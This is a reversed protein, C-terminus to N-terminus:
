WTTPSPRATWSSPPRSTCRRAGMLNSVYVVSWLRALGALTGQADLVPQVALTTQETFLESRGLVVFLFGVAYMNAVLLRAVPETLAGNTLTWAVAMLFVSFGIDLGASLGSIFLASAPRDLADAGEV